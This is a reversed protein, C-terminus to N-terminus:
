GRNVIIQALRKVHAFKPGPTCTFEVYLTPQQEDYRIGTIHATVPPYLGHPKSLTIDHDLWDDFTGAPIPTTHGHQAPGLAATYGFPKVASV